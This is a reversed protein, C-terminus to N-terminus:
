ISIKSVVHPSSQLPGTELGPLEPRGEAADQWVFM